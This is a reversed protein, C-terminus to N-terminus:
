MAISPANRGSANPCRTRTSSMARAQIPAAASSAASGGQGAGIVLLLALSTEAVVLGSRLREHRLSATAGKTGDKLDMAPSAGASSVAPRRM